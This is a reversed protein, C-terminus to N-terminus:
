LSRSNERRGMHVSRGSLKRYLLEALVSLVVLGALGYIQWRTQPNSFVQVCLAILALLCAGLAVASVSRRSRTEHALRFNALNVAAFVLLFGASGLTAIASLPVVNVLFLALVAFLVMGEIPQNRIDREFATPLEGYRAILYTLRGSGYFTANIASATAALAAIVIAIAGPRGLIEFAAASLVEDRNAAIARFGLQSLVACAIGVYVLLVITVGGLYAFPLSRRPHQARPAANAILEFGEYNLFIVMAGAILPLPGVWHTPTLHSWNGPLLLGGAIFGALLVLKLINLTNESRIVLHPGIFNLAALLVLIGSALLQRDHTGGGLLEAGYSGFAFAYIALLIIYSLCMLISLAGTFAGAGFARNLFEVTGGASPFRLTLKLYCWATLLAVVGAAAFALPAAGHTLEITLGTVAFIGGGIMGGIGISLLAWTGLSM